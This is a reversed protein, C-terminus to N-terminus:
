KRYRSTFICVYGCFAVAAAALLLQFDTRSRAVRFMDRHLSAAPAVGGLWFNRRFPRADGGNFKFIRFPVPPFM